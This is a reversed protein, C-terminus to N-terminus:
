QGARVESTGIGPFDLWGWIRRAAEVLVPARAPTVPEYLVPADLPLQTTQVLDPLELGLGHAQSELNSLSMREDRVGTLRDLELRIAATEKRLVEVVVQQRVTYVHQGVYLSAAALIGLLYALGSRTGSARYRRRLHPSTM